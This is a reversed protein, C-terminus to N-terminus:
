AFLDALPISLEPLVHEGELAEHERLLRASGDTRYVTVTKQRPAVVWVLRAGGDLYDQVKQQIADAEDSPSLVEVALDPAGHFFKEPIRGGLREHSLFAVDAGRVREPDRPVALVFGVDGVFAHGRDHQELYDVLRRYIRGAIHSHLPGVPPMEVIEGNVLERRVDDESMKWLDDATLRTGTAM